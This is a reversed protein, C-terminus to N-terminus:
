PVRGPAPAAPGQAALCCSSRPLLRGAGPRAARPTGPQNHRPHEATGLGPSTPTQLRSSQQKTGKLTSMQAGLCCVLSRGQCVRADPGQAPVLPLVLAWAPKDSGPWTNAGPRHLGHNREMEKQPKLNARVTLVGALCPFVMLGQELSFCIPLHRSRGSTVCHVAASSSVSGLHGSEPTPHYSGSQGPRARSHLSQRGKM